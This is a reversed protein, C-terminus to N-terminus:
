ATSPKRQPQHPNRWPARNTAIPAFRGACRLADRTLSPWTEREPIARTGPLVRQSRRMPPTSPPPLGKRELWRANPITWPRRRTRIRSRRANRTSPSVSRGAPRPPDANQIVLFVGNRSPEVFNISRRAGSGTPLREDEDVFHGLGIHESNICVEIGKTTVPEGMRFPGHVSCASEAFVRPRGSL